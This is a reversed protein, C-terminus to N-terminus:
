PSKSNTEPCKEKQIEPSDLDVVLFCGQFFCGNKQHVVWGRNGWNLDVGGLGHLNVPSFFFGVLPKPPLCKDNSRDSFISPACDCLDLDPVNAAEPKRLQAVFFVKRSEM